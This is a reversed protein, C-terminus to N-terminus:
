VPGDLVRVTIQLQKVIQHFFFQQLASVQMSIFVLNLHYILRFLLTGGLIPHLKIERIFVVARQPHNEKLIPTCAASIMRRLEKSVLECSIEGAVAVLCVVTKRFPDCYGPTHDM